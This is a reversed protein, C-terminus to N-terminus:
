PEHPQATTKGVMHEYDQENELCYYDLLESDIGRWHRLDRTDGFTHPQKM